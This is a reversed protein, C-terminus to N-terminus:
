VCSTWVRAEENYIVTCLHAKPFLNQKKKVFAVARVQTKRGPSTDIHDCRHTQHAGSVPVSWHPGSCVGEQASHKTLWRHHRCGSDCRTRTCSPPKSAGVDPAPSWAAESAEHSAGREGATLPAMDSDARSELEPDETQNSSMM